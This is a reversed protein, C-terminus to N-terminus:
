LIISFCLLKKTVYKQKIDEDWRRLYIFENGNLYCEKVVDNKVAYSKGINRGGLLIKYQADIKKIREVSYYKKKM